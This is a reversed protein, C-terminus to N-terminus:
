ALLIYIFNQTFISFYDFSVTNSLLSVSINDVLFKQATYSDVNTGALSYAAGLYSKSVIFGIFAPSALLLLREVQSLTAWFIWLYMM